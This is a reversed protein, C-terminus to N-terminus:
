WIITSVVFVWVVLRFEALKRNLEGDSTRMEELFMDYIEGLLVLCVKKPIGQLYEFSARTKHDSYSLMYSAITARFIDLDVVAVRDHYDSFDRVAWSLFICARM